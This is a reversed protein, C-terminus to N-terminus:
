VEKISKFEQNIKQDSESASINKEKYADKGMLNDENMQDDGSLDSTLVAALFLMYPETNASDCDYHEFVLKESGSRSGSIFAQSSSQKIQKEQMIGNKMEMIGSKRKTM